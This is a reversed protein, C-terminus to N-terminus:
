SFWRNKESDGWSMSLYDNCPTVVFKEMKAKAKGEGMETHITKYKTINVTAFLLLIYLSLKQILTSQKETM